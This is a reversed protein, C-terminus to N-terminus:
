KVGFERRLLNMTLGIADSLRRKGEDTASIAAEEAAAENIYTRASGVSAWRGHEVTRDFSGYLSFHWSAGGRRIGHPTPKPHKLSFFSVADRYRQYFDKPKKNFLRVQGSSKLKSLIQIVFPDKLTVTEFEVNRLRAGKTDRLILCMQNRGRPQCDRLLLNFIECGRLLALFGVYVAIAFEPDKNLIGYSVFAKVLESHLPMAQTKRAVRSWNNLWSSATDLHRKCRPHFKKFGAICNTGLYLPMDRQYLSNLYNGLQLDLECFNPNATLGESRRWAFFSNMASMYRTVTQRTISAQSIHKRIPPKQTSSSSKRKRPM